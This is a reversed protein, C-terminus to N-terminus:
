LGRATIASHTPQEDNEAATKMDVILAIIQIATGARTKRKKRRMRKSMRRTM